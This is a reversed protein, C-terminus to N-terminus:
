TTSKPIRKKRGKKYTSKKYDAIAEDGTMGKDLRPTIAGRTVGTVRCFEALHIQKGKYVILRNNRKNAQQQMHTAWICNEKSYGKNNDIRDLTLGHQYGEWMDRYFNEFVLWDSCVGIGRGAYNKNSQDKARDKMGRWVGWFRTNTMNHFTEEICLHCHKRGERNSRKVNQLAIESVEGCHCCKALTITMARTSTIRKEELVRVIEYM